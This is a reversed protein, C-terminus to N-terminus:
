PLNYEIILQPRSALPANGSFLSLYNAIANNNDDLKFRLRIQTLGGNTTLKNIYAKGNTLNINYWGNTLVPKSPGYTKQAATQFDAPQLASTGFMGKKIDVLIGQFANVPNGGGTIGQKKLKLTVKTIVANDPLSATNFSLVGRYQKKAADDGLRFTTATNNKANGMGSTETSELIWGDQAGTSRFTITEATDNVTITFPEQFTGGNGDSTQICISYSNKTEYDFIAATKLLNGTISFSADDVGGCLSYTFTDGANADTSSLSGVTSGAPLNENVSSASLTIDTPAVNIGFAALFDAEKVITGNNNVNTFAGGVFLDNNLIGLAYVYKDLSGNGSGDSGLASWTTGDFKAIYDAEALGDANTFAGGVVLNGGLEAISYVAGNFAALNGVASWTGTNVTYKAIRNANVVGGANTFSGGVYLDNGVLKLAYVHSDIATGPGLAGWDAGDWKAVYDAENIVTGNNNVNIFSGGVYLDGNFVIARVTGGLSGNGLSGTGIANWNAGDFMALYDAADVSAGSNNANTFNGGAYINNGDIAIAQVFGNLSGNGGTGSGLAYWNTGDWRVIYDAATIPNQTVNDYVNTFFGGIYLDSGSVALAYVTANLAGYTKGANGVASWTSGDWKALYDIAPNGGLDRFNGGVYVDTGLVAIANVDLNFVGNSDGLSGWNSGDWVGFYDASSNATGNNNIDFMYGGVYLSGGSVAMGLAGGNLSGNGAGNSGLSSWTNTGTDFKALYDATPITPITFYGSVYISNGDIVIDQIPTGNGGGSIAGNGSGNNGLASWNAGDWKAIYDATAINAANTFGGGVYVNDSADVALATVLSSSLAGDGSGNSGLASWNTGDWKAVRDAEPISVGGNNVNQFFGGAYLNGSSDIALSYVSNDLSGDSAGNNGLASWTSTNLNLRAVRDAEAIGSINTFGGGIYIFNNAADYALAYGWDNLPASLGPAASWATGNWVALSTANPITTNNTDRVAFSYGIVYLDSGVFLMETVASTLAGDGSGNNSLSTWQAGDWKAIHDAEPNGGADTFWGGVYIDSGNVVVDNVGDKFAGGGAGVNDWQNTAALPSFVPGLAPDLQVDWGDLDFSGDVNGGTNLTGDPNLYAEPSVGKHNAEDAPTSAFAHQSPTVALAGATICVLMVARLFINIFKM